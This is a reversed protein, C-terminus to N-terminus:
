EMSYKKARLRAKECSMVSPGYEDGDELYATGPCHICYKSDICESCKKLDHWKMDQLRKLESSNNWIDIIKMDSINGLRYLFKNCPYVDGKCDIFLANQIGNCVYEDEEHERVAYERARDLEHMTMDFQSATIRIDNEPFTGDKRAFVDHDIKFGVNNAMCFEAVSGWENYNINTIITKIELPIKEKLIYDINKLARKHSGNIGTIYDHTKENMSFITCSIQSVYMNKLKKIKEENLLSVNTFLIVKFGIKRAYAIIDFIDNRLFIEGGTLTLEFAGAEKLEDLMEVVNEYDLGPNTHESIYCHKCRWNCQDTLEVVVSFLDRNAFSLEKIKEELDEM